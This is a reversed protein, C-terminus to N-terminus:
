WAGRVAAPQCADAECGDGYGDERTWHRVDSALAVVQRAAGRLGRQALRFSLARYSDLAWLCVLWAADGTYVAGTDAVVTIDRLTARHDLDPFRRRAAPSGAEVLEIPVLQPQRGLWSGARRCIPCHGDYLVVLRSTVM